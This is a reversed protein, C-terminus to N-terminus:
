GNGFVVQELFSDVSAETSTDLQVLKELVHLMHERHGAQEQQVSDVSEVSEGMAICEVLRLSRDVVEQPVGNRRACAAGYSGTAVGPSLKYLFVLQNEGDEVCEMMRLQLNEQPAVHIRAHQAEEGLAQEELANRLLPLAELFHTTFIAKPCDAGRRLVNAIAAAFLAIGDQSNTGKGFEDVLVLSRRTCQQLANNLQVCDIMFSSQAVSVSERSRIRTCIRDTLAIEAAAAPVFSGCHAM